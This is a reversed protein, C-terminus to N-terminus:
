TKGKYLFLKFISISQMSKTSVVISKLLITMNAIDITKVITNEIKSYKFKKWLSKNKNETNLDNTDRNLKTKSIGDKQIINYPFNNIYNEKPKNM